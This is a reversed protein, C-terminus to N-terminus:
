KKKPRGRPRPPTTSEPKEKRPRGRPKKEGEPKPEHIRPRGRPKKETEPKPQYIRPRGRPRPPTTSEPKEKRPRGRPKKEEESKIERTRPRGRQKKPEEKMDELVSEIALPTTNDISESSEILQEATNNSDTASDNKNIYLTDQGYTTYSIIKLQPEGVLNIPVGNKMRTNCNDKAVFVSVIIGWALWLVISAIMWWTYVGNNFIPFAVAMCLLAIYYLLSATGLSTMSKLPKTEQKTPQDYITERKLYIHKKDGSQNTIRYVKSLEADFTIQNVNEPTLLAINSDNCMDHARNMCTQGFKYTGVGISTVIGTIGKLKKQVVISEYGNQRKELIDTILQINTDVTLLLVENGNARAIGSYIQSSVNTDKVMVLVSHNELDKALTILSQQDAYDENCVYVIDHEIKYSNLLKVIQLDREYLNDVIKNAVIIVNLM